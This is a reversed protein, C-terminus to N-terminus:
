LRRIHQQGRSQRAARMRVQPARGGEPRRGGGDAGRRLWLAFGTFKGGDGEGRSSVCSSFVHRPMPEGMYGQVVQIGKGHAGATPKCIWLSAAAEAARTLADREDALGGGPVCLFTEPLGMSQMSVEEGELARAECYCRLTRVQTIDMRRGYFCVWRTLSRTVWARGRSRRVALAERRFPKNQRVNDAPSRALVLFGLPTNSGCPPSHPKTMVMLGKVTIHKTGRMHNVLPKCGPLGEDVGLRAYPVDWRDALLLRYGTGNVAKWRDDAKLLPEVAAYQSSKTCFRYTAAEESGANGM